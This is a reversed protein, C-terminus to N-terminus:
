EYNVCYIYDSMDKFSNLPRLYKRCVASTYYPDKAFMGAHDRETNQSEDLLKVLKQGAENEPNKQKWKFALDLPSENDKNYSFISGGYDLLIETLNM